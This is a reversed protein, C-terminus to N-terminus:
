KKPEDAPVYEPVPGAEPVPVEGAEDPLMPQGGGTSISIQRASPQASVFQKKFTAAEDLIQQKQEDTLQGTQRIAEGIDPHQVRMFELFEKNFRRVESTKIDMLVDHTAMYLLIVEDEVNYPEFQPQVLTQM